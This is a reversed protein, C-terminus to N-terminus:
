DLGIDFIEDFREQRSQLFAPQVLLLLQQDAYEPAINLFQGRWKGIREWGCQAPEGGDLHLDGVKDFKAFSGFFDGLYHLEGRPSDTDVPFIYAFFKVQGVPFGIELGNEGDIDWRLPLDLHAPSLRRAAALCCM